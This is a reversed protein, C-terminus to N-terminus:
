DTIRRALLRGRMGAQNSTSEVAHRIADAQSRRAALYEEIESRNNLFYAITAHVDALALAPFQEVIEEATNGDRYCAIVTDLPVRTAGLRITGDDDMHLPNSM